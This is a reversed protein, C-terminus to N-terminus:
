RVIGGCIRCIYLTYDSRSDDDCGNNKEARKEEETRLRENREGAGTWLVITRASVSWGRGAAEGCGAGVILM